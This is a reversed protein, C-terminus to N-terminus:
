SEQLFKQFAKRAPEEDTLQKKLTVEAATKRKIAKMGLMFPNWDRKLSTRMKKIILTHEGSYLKPRHFKNRSSKIGSVISMNKMWVAEPGLVQDYM